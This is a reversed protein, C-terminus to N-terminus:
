LSFLDYLSIGKHGWEVGGVTASTPHDAKSVAATAPTWSEDGMPSTNVEATSALSIGKRMRDQNPRTADAQSVM